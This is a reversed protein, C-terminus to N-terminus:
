GQNSTTYEILKDLASMGQDLVKDNCNGAPMKVLLQNLEERISQRRSKNGNAGDGVDELSANARSLTKKDRM